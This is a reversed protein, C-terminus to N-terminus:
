GGLEPTQDTGSSRVDEGIGRRFYHLVLPLDPNPVAFELKGRPTECVVVTFGAYALPKGLQYNGFSRIRHDTAPDRPRTYAATVAETIRVVHRDPSYWFPRLIVADPTLDMKRLQFRASYPQYLGRFSCAVWRAEGRDIAAIDARRAAAKPPLFGGKLTEWGNRTGAAHKIRASRM